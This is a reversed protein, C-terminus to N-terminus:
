FPSRLFVKKGTELKEEQLLYLILSAAIVPYRFSAEFGTLCKKKPKIALLVNPILITEVNINGGSFSDERFFLIRREWGERNWRSTKSFSWKRNARVRM